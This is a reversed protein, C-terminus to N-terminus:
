FSRLRYVIMGFYEKLATTTGSLSGADPILNLLLTEWSPHTLNEWDSATMSYDTPAPIVEFGQQEFLYVSRPMHFASTVLLITKVQHEELIASSFEANQRTNVSKGELWVDTEPVDLLQLITSMEEAPNHEQNAAWALRGGTALIYPARHQHYLYAAYLVRDGANNIEVTQRPYAPPNTGGGLVVIADAQPYEELPLYRWELSRTLAAAVWPNGGLWILLMVMLIINRHWGKQKGLLVLFLLLFFALGLPYVLQPLFKSLFIM